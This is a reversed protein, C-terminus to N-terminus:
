SGVCVNLLMGIGTLEIPLMNDIPKLECSVGEGDYVNSLRMKNGVCPPKDNDTALEETSENLLLRDLRSAEEDATGAEDDALGASLM